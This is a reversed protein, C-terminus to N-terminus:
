RLFPDKKTWFIPDVVVPDMHMRAKSRFELLIKYEAEAWDCYPYAREISPALSYSERKHGRFIWGQRYIEGDEDRRLVPKPLAEFENTLTAWDACIRINEGFRSQRKREIM